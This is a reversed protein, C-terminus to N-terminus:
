IGFKRKYFLLGRKSIELKEAMQGLDENCEQYHRLFDEQSLAGAYFIGYKDLLKYM